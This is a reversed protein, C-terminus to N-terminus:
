KKRIQIVTEEDWRVGPPLKGEHEDMYEKVATKNVAHNLLQTNGDIIFPLLEDWDGVGCRTTTTKFVTGTKSSSSEAGSENLRTLLLAEIMEMENAVVKLRAKFKNTAEDVLERLSIFRDILEGTNTEKLTALLSSADGRVEERKGM